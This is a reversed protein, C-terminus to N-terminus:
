SDSEDDRAAKFRISEDKAARLWSNFDDYAHNDWPTKAPTAFDFIRVRTGPRAEAVNWDFCALVIFGDNFLGTEDRTFAFPILPKNPFKLLMEGYYSLSMPMDRALFRWPDIEPWTDAMAIALYEAPFKFGAPLIPADFLFPKV